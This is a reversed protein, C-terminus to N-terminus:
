VLNKWLNQPYVGDDVLRCIQESVAQKDAPFTVGFWQSSSKLMQIEVEGSQILEDISVPLICEKTLANHNENLFHLFREELLPFIAPTFAWMNMSAIATEPLEIRNGPEGSRIIGDEDRSIHFQEDVSILNGDNNAKCIGRTVGGNESLTNHLEFGCFSFLNKDSDKLQTLFDALVKYAEAGYFDDANLVVFPDNVINKALWLAHTTGWPKKRESHPKFPEPLSTLEQYVFEYSIHNLLREEFSSRFDDEIDKRIIFVFHKFGANLADFVAYDIIAEGSPGFGEVQKLGGYRSAIGAALVVLTLGKKKTEM